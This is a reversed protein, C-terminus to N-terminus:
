EPVKVTSVIEQPTLGTLRLWNSFRLNFTHTGRTLEQEETSPTLYVTVTRGEPITVEVEAGWPNQPWLYTVPRGDHTGRTWTKARVCDAFTTNIKQLQRETM